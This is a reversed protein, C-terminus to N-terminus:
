LTRIGPKEFSGLGDLKILQIAPSPALPFNEKEKGSERQGARGGFAERGERGSGRGRVGARRGRRRMRAAQGTVLRARARDSERKSESVRESALKSERRQSEGKVKEERRERVAEQGAAPPRGNPRGGHGTMTTTGHRAAM